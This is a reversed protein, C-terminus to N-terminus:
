NQPKVLIRGAVPSKKDHNPEFCGDAYLVLPLDHAKVHSCLPIESYFQNTPSITQWMGDVRQLYMSADTSGCGYKVKAYDKYELRLQHIGDSCGAERNLVELYESLDKSPVTRTERLQDRVTQEAAKYDYSQYKDQYMVWFAMGLALLIGGVIAAIGLSSNHKKSAKKAM